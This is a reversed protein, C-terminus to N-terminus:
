YYRAPKGQPIRPREGGPKAEWRVQTVYLCRKHVQAKQPADPNRNWGHFFAYTRGGEEILTQHGPGVLPTHKGSHLIPNEGVDGCPGMPTVCKLYAVSYNQNGFFNGTYFLTYDGGRKVMTPAEVVLWEWDDQEGPGDNSAVLRRSPGAVALGDARLEQVHIASGRGCCNGDDKYYLYLKDGDRFPAADIVGDPFEECVLPEPQGVFPGAPTEALAAGICHRQLVRPGEPPRETRTLTKHRANFYLVYRGGIEMVEPAWVQAHGRDVWAPLNEAPLVEVPASWDRLDTSRVLQVNHQIGGIRTGTGFAHYTQGQKLVFPDPLDENLILHPQRLGLTELPVNRGSAGPCSPEAVGEALGSSSGLLVALLLGLHPTRM